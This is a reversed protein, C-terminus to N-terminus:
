VHARGIKERSSTIGESLGYLWVSLLLRPDWPRRGRGGAVSSLGVFFASLDMKGMLCWIARAKHPPPILQDVDITVVKLQERNASRLKLNCPVKAPKPPAAAAPGDPEEFLRANEQSEAM